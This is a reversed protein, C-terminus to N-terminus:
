ESISELEESTEKAQPLSLNTSYHSNFGLLLSIKNRQKKTWMGSLSDCEIIVICSRRATTWQMIKKNEDLSFIKQLKWGRIEMENIYFNKIFQNDLFTYYEFLTDRQGSVHTGELFRVAMSEVQFPVPIDSLLVHRYPDIRDDTDSLQNYCDNNFRSIANKAEDFLSNQSYPTHTKTSAKRSGCAPLLLLVMMVPVFIV